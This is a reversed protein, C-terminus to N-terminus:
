KIVYCKYDKFKRVLRKGKRKGLVMVSTSLANAFEASPGVVTASVLGTSPMGTKPNIIHSYRKGNVEAYKEYSGSTTVAEEKLAIIKAVGASKRPHAVGIKWVDAKPPKGWTSIDGSANVLGATAGAAKM